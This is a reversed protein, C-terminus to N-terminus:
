ACSRIRTDDSDPDANSHFRDRNLPFRLTDLPPWALKSNYFDVTAEAAYDLVKLYLYGKEGDKFPKSLKYVKKDGEFWIKVTDWVSASNVPIPVVDAISDPASAPVPANMAVGQYTSVKLIAIM